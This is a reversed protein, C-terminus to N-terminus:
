ENSVDDPPIFFLPDSSMETKCILSKDEKDATVTSIFGTVSCVGRLNVNLYIDPPLSYSAEALKPLLKAPPLKLLIVNLTISPLSTIVPLSTVSQFTMVNSSTINFPAETYSLTMIKYYM